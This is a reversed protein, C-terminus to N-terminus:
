YTLYSDKSVYFEIYFEFSSAIEFPCLEPKFELILGLYDFTARRSFM